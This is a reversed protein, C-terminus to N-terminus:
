ASDPTSTSSKAPLAPRSTRACFPPSTEWTTLPLTADCHRDPRWRNSYRAFIPFVPGSGVDKIPGASIANARIGEPRGAGGRRIARESGPEGEGRGDRQLKCGSPNGRLYTLTLLAGNRGQMMPRAAKALAAFSYASVDHALAHADRTLADLYDGKLAERPAFAIAHVVIDLGDWHERLAEFAGDSTPIAHWM